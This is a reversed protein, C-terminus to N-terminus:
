SLSRLRTKIEQELIKGQAFNTELQGMLREFTEEFPEAADEAADMGVYRGPTLIFSHAEIEDHTAAKCFGVEDEYLGADPEGRWAHYATAIRAIDNASFAKQKRSGPILEGMGRANIMLVEGRRDRLRADKAIGNSKDRALIWICAPVGTGYFLQSPLSIVADIAHAEVMRRRIEGQGLEMTSVAGNAMVVGAVGAAALRAHIHSMWAFNANGEPPIGFVWRADERLLHGDWESINFPPNAMVYDFREDALEDSLLTGQNNWKLEGALGRIAMNMRALRYTTHKQEQGYIALDGNLGAHADIFRESQVFFSGTGYCPDYVRGRTPEIMEVILEVVCKPTHFEGGRKGESSAFEGIFYEYVRGILDFDRRTGDMEINSFLDILGTIIDPSTSERGFVKPLAGKLSENEKEIERMADDVMVGIKRDKSRASLFSWRAKAPVWFVGEAGYEDRDEPNAFEDSALRAHLREFSISVYRLFLLGLAVHKYEGPEMSNRMKDAAAFLSQEIKM